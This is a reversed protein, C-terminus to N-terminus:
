GQGQGNQRLFTDDAYARGGRFENQCQATLLAEDGGVDAAWLRFVQWPDAIVAGKGGFPDQAQRRGPQDAAVLHPWRGGQLLQAPGPDLHVHQGGGGGEGVEVLADIGQGGQEPDM